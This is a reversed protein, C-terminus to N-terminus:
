SLMNMIDKNVDAMSIVVKAIDGIAPMDLEEKLMGTSGGNDSVSIIASVEVPFLKLGKLIQSLGTGGGFLVIKKM